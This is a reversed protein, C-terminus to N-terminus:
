FRYYDGSIKLNTFHFMASIAQTSISHIDNNNPEHDINLDGTVM